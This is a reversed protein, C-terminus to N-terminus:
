RRPQSREGRRCCCLACEVPRQQSGSTIPVVLSASIHSNETAVSPGGPPQRREARALRRGVMKEHAQIVRTGSMVDVTHRLSCLHSRPASSRGDDRPPEESWARRCTSTLAQDQRQTHQPPNCVARMGTPPVLALLSARTNTSAMEVVLGLYARTGRPRANSGDRCRRTKSNEGDRHQHAERM